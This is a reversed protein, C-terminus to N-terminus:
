QSRVYNENKFFKRFQKWGKLPGCYGIENDKPSIFRCDSIHDQEIELQDIRYVMDGISAPCAQHELPSWHGPNNTCCFLGLRIDNLLDVENTDLNLYSVKCCRGASVLPLAYNDILFKVKEDIPVSLKKNDPLDKLYDIIKTWRVALALDDRDDNWLPLHWDSLQCKVPISRFMAEHLMDAIKHFSPEAAEHCRQFFMNDWDTGTIIVTCFMWPEILRNVYQKHINMGNLTQCQVIAADRFQLWFTQAALAEKEELSDGAQMGTKNLRFDPIFPDDTVRKVLKNNPIARSSAANKCLMKHTNLEALISRPFTLQATTLRAGNAISDALIKAEFM